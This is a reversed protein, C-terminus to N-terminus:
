SRGSALPFCLAVLVALGAAAATVARSLRIARRIDAPEPARGDGLEPRAETIGGYVNAGGLRLGLAGAFAAECRGANPSPHRHGYRLVARLASAAPGLGPRGGAPEDQASAAPMAATAPLPAATRLSGAAPWPAASPPAGAAPWSAASPLPGAAPLPTVAACAITLAATVRAPIWNVADDLRAPAWGFRLYRPSRHGVMADLTNVARYAALGPLGAVAGWLLPAVIADSTNEAVSEIVARTIQGADLRAPDRGCLSPLAERAARLDDGALSVMIREAEHHLSRSGTVAWVALAVAAAELPPRDRTRRHLLVAPAAAALVCAAAHAAGRPRSDAYDRAELAAAARGFAAVPHGRRPDGLLADLTVGAALGAALPWRSRM